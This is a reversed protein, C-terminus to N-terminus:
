KLEVIITDLDKIVLLNNENKKKKLYFPADIDSIRPTFKSNKPRWIAEDEIHFKSSDYETVENERVYISDNLIYIGRENFAKSIKLDFESSTNVEILKSSYNYNNLILSSIIIIAVIIFVIYLRNKM